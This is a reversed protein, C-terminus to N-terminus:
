GSQLYLSFSNLTLFISVLQSAQNINRQDKDTLPTLHGSLM